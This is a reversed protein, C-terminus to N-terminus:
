AKSQAVVESKRKRLVGVGLAILGPLLAPTPVATVTASFSAGVSKFGGQTTYVANAPGDVDPTYFGAFSGAGADSLDFSTLSFTRGGLLGSIWSVPSGTLSYGSLNKTLNLTSLTLPQGPAGFIAPGGFMADTFLTTNVNIFDLKATTLTLDTLKNSGAFNLTSAQAPATMAVTGAVVSTAMIASIGLTKFNM